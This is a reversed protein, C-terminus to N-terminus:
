FNKQVCPSHTFWRLRPAIAAGLPVALLLFAGSTLFFIMTQLAESISNSNWIPEANLLLWLFAAMATAFSVAMARELLLWGMVLGVILSLPAWALFTEAAVVMRVPLGFYRHEIALGALVGLVSVCAWVLLIGLVVSLALLVVLRAKM